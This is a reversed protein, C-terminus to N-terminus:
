DPGGRKGLAPRNVNWRNNCSNSFLAPLKQTSRQCQRQGNGSGKGGSICEEVIISKYTKVGSTVKVHCFVKRQRSVKIKGRLQLKPRARSGLVTQNQGKRRIGSDVDCYSKVM